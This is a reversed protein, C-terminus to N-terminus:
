YLIIDAHMWNANIKLIQIFLSFFQTGKDIRIDHLNLAM